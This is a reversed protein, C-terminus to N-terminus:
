TLGGQSDTWERNAPMVPKEYGGHCNERAAHGCRTNFTGGDGSEADGRGAIRGGGQSGMKPPSFRSATWSRYSLGGPEMAQNSMRANAAVPTM